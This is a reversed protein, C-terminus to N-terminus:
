AGRSRRRIRHFVVMGFLGIGVIAWTSTEPIVVLQLGTTGQFFGQKDGLTGINGIGFNGINSLSSATVAILTYTGESVLSWDVAGGSANVLSTLDFSNDFSTAGSVDLTAGATFVFRAGSDLSLNGTITGDGGFRAANAVSTNSTVSGDLILAAGTAVTTTGTYTNTGTIIARSAASNQNRVIALDGGGTINGSVTFTRDAALGHDITLNGNLTMTGTLDVSYNGGVGSNDKIARFGGTAVVINNAVTQNQSTNFALGASASDGTTGLTLIGNGLLNAGTSGSLQLNGKSVTVNGNFGSNNGSLQIRGPSFSASTDTFATNLTEIILNGSGTMNRSINFQNAATLNGSSLNRVTLDAGVVFANAGSFELSYSTTNTNNYTLTSANNVNIRVSTYNKNFGTDNRLELGGGNLNVAFANNIDAVGPM